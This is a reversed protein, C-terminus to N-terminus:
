SRFERVREYLPAVPIKGLRGLRKVIAWQTRGHLQAMEPESLSQEFERALQADEDPPWPKGQNPPLRIEGGM